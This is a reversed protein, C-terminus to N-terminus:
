AEVFLSVRRGRGLLTAKALGWFTLTLAHFGAQLPPSDGVAVSSPEQAIKLVGQIWFGLSKPGLLKWKM